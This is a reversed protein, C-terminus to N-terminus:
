VFVLWSLAALMTWFLGVVVIASASRNSAAFWTIVLVGVGSLVFLGNVVVERTYPHVTIQCNGLLFRAVFVAVVFGFMALMSGRGLISWAASQRKGDSVRSVSTKEKTLLM